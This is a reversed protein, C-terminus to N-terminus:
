RAGGVRVLWGEAIERKEPPLYKLVTKLYKPHSRALFSIKKGAHVGTAMEADPLEPSVSAEGTVGEAQTGEAKGMRDPGEASQPPASSDSPGTPEGDAGVSVEAMWREIWDHAEQFTLETFHARGVMRHGEDDTM